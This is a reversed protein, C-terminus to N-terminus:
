AARLPPFYHEGQDNEAQNGPKNVPVEGLFLPICVPLVPANIVAM